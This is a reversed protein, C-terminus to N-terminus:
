YRNETELTKLHGAGHRRVQAALHVTGFKNHKPDVVGFAVSLATADWGALEFPVTVLNLM